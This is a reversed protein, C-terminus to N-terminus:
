WGWDPYATQVKPRSGANAKGEQKLGIGLYGTLKNLRRRGGTALAISSTNLNM